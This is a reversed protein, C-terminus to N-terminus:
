LQVILVVREDNRMVDVSVTEGPSLRKLRNMYDYINKVEMGNMAVIVDGKLMGGQDAPGDARVGDVRLGNNDAGTFDPMIGLTVKFDYGQREREKPGAEKFTLPEDRNALELVLRHTYDLVVKQGEYNIFEADDKPTHYDIHAGTSIFFVPIDEAYFAAHDSPGFGDSSFGLNLEDENISALIDVAEHSTGTGGIMVSNDEKLRGIMDFNIMAKISPIEILPDKIFYKSGMLGLEEAGFAVFVISRRTKVSDQALTEALEMVGAVGSANDDAGNHVATTDIARSGSGPGGMGLHDYHAGVVIYENKLEPDSGELKAVVNKTELKLTNVDSRGDIKVSINMTTAVRHETAREEIAAVSLEM